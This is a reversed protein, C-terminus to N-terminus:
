RLGGLLFTKVKGVFGEKGILRCKLARVQKKLELNEATLKDIKDDVCDTYVQWHGNPCYFRKGDEQRNEDFDEPVQFIIGCDCCEITEFNVTTM